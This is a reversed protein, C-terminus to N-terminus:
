SSASCFRSLFCASRFFRSAIASVCFSVRLSRLSSAACSASISSASSSISSDSDSSSGVRHRGKSRNGRRSSLPRKWDSDSSTRESRQDCSARPPAGDITSALRCSEKERKAGPTSIGAALSECMWEIRPSTVRAPSNIAAHFNANAVRIMVKPQSSVVLNPSASKPQLKWISFGSPVMSSMVSRPTEIRGAPPVEAATSSCMSFRMREYARRM